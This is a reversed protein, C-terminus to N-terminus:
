LNAPFKEIKPTEDVLQVRQSARWSILALVLVVASITATIGAGETTLFSLGCLMLATFVLSVSIVRLGFRNQKRVALAEEPSEAQADDRKQQRTTLYIYHEQAVSDKSRQWLEYGLLLLLPLGIGMITEEARTLKFDLLLPALIKFFLNASLSIGTIWLTAQSTLRKSFLAWLPPALLPGGSISSISLVVEVIGGAAPVMLAIGIM